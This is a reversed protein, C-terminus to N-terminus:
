YHRKILELTKSIGPHGTTPSSHFSRLIDTRLTVVEPVVIHDADDRVLGDISTWPTNPGDVKKAVNPPLPDPFRLQSLFSPDSLKIISNIFLSPPLLTQDM